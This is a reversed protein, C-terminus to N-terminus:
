RENLCHIQPIEFNNSSHLVEIIKHENPLLNICNDSYRQGNAESLFVFLALKDSSISYKKKNIATVKLKPVELTLDIFTLWLGDSESIISTNNKLQARLILNRLNKLEAQINIESVLVSAGAKLIFKLSDQRLISADFNYLKWNLNLSSDKKIDSVAYIRAMLSDCVVFVAIPQFAKKVAYHSPKWQGQYDVTSWSMTPWCDDIQWFLSGMCNPKNIRHYMIANSLGYAHMIMSTNVFDNFGKPKKFYMNIYYEMNNTGNYGPKIWNMQIRQRHMMLPAYIGTDSSEAFSNICAMEPFSQMGYESVFPATNIGYKKFPKFSFWVSWDHEDGSKRDPITDGYSSPSSSWYSIQNDYKKVASPFYIM